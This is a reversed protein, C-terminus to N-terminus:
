KDTFLINVQHIRTTDTISQLLIIMSHMLGIDITHPSQPLESNKNLTIQNHSNVPDYNITVSGDNYHYTNPETQSDLKLITNGIRGVLSCATIKHNDQHTIQVYFGDRTKNKNFSEPSGFFSPKKIYPGDYEPCFTDCNGCENCFDAFNALQQLKELKFTKPPDIETIIGDPLVTIDRYSLETLPTNYVFNADNPCVPVCKECTLCDFIVLHSNIRKPILTNFEHYYRNNNQTKETILSTNLAAAKHINNQAQERKDCSDLIFDNINKSKTSLMAASLNHLYKPLRAYGNTKLLDTCTTIPNFGCAVMYPFNKYDVGASFSIPIENMGLQQRFTNALTLSIVHLPPGSLYMVKINDAPFHNKHNLVELTNSFKVGFNHNHNQALSFMRRSMDISEDLQLGSTYATPNVTIDRYGMKDFLLNELASKGLMPPNMKVIVDVDMETLLFECIKEIEDAPCGHFTSLTISNSIRTPYNLDLLPKLTDPIEAKLQNIIQTADKMSQIFQCIAPSKIGALDYGISMDFVFDYDLATTNIDIGFPYSFIEPAYRLMHILMCAQVYQNLSDHLRLEQSWEINYGVNAADICPKAITLKDNIQVTKLEFIRAGALWGLVINHALQTHPGSAPGAPNGVTKNHFKVSLDPKCTDSPCPKYWKAAPLDFISAQNTYERHMRQILHYFPACVFDSM